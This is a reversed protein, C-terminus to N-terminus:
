RTTARNLVAQLDALTVQEAVFATKNQWGRLWTLQRKALQRTAAIARERMESKGCLGDLFEWVQRYGVCRMAPLDAHLKPLANHLNTRNKLHQVEDMLGSQLMADFRTAIREHLAQRSQPELAILEFRLDLAAPTREKFHQSLPIGTTRFVELARGIRQSDNPSLRAATTADVKELLAHLAPWGLSQAELALETRISDDAQPLEDMGHLLAKFYLMTGGVLVPTKGRARIEGILRTADRAFEGASYSQSPDRIDLLHHAVKAQENPSPKATGINMEKYVTASDVCILETPSGNKTQYVAYNLALKSKGSATPGAICLIPPSQQM